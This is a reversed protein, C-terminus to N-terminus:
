KRTKRTEFVPIRKEERTSGMRHTSSNESSGMFEPMTAEGEASIGDRRLVKWVTLWLIKLDLWFSLNDFYWVDLGFKDEWSIANACESPGM